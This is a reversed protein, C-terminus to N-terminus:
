LSQASPGCAHRVHACDTHCMRKQLHQYQLMLAHSVKKAKKEPDEQVASDAEGGEASAESQKAVAKSPKKAKEASVPQVAPGNATATPSDLDDKLAAETGQGSHM